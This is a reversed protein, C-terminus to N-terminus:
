RPFAERLGGDVPIMAGTTKSSRDSALWLAAQAVDDPTVRARLLNRQQYFGELGDVEIGYSAARQEKLEDSWLGSDEFVADPNIMNVRVGFEGGEIALVRALQAEAAKSVSYAGFDKGPAPVNKTAVFVMAGGTGQDKFIRMAERAVLFHGTTNVALSHQWDEMTLADLPAVHAVGANSILIDVGGYTLRLKEFAAAVAEEDTVDISVAAARGAGQSEEIEAAVAKTREDDLDTLVVHAGEAALRRAIAAGIGRAAGTVLVVRRALEKEPPALSLKYLELPWYEAEFADKESLSIYHDLAESGDIVRVTHRYIDATITCARADKGVTWMGIGPVLVVRPAPDLLPEDTHYKDYYEQYRATYAAMETRLTDVIQGRDNPDKVQLFLPHRKTHLLHDPTAPGMEILDQVGPRAIFEMIESSDDFRLLKRDQASLAGRLIPAIHAATARREVDPPPKLAPAIFSKKRAAQGAILEETRSVLLIHNEYAEKATDGWTVLGHNMLVVGRSGFSLVLADAVEKALRFGPRRYGIVEVDAFAKRVAQEGGRTNTLSLIADAHSHAIAVGPLFGHLLTEISPRPASPDVMCRGVYAVMEEDTMDDQANAAMIDDLRVAPFDKAEAVKMDSGTGKVYMLRVSQGLDNTSNVKISTNGGGWLVLSDDEGMIRSMYVLQDLPTAGAQRDDWRSKM